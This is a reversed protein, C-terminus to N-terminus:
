SCRHIKKLVSLIARTSESPGAAVGTPTDWGPDPNESALAALIYSVADGNSPGYGGELVLALPVGAAQKLIRVLIRFDEPRIQMGGLPDDDLIDLGAAVLLADPKFRAIAPAFIESFVASYDGIGSRPRLPANITFGKGYGSGIEDMTGSFPFLNAQQVSCYLVKNSGYFAHQIGNGHHVDWDVIAVRDVGTVLKAAAIAVNNLLCFGMPKDQEAHHGPPRILAFCHEGNMSRETATIVAGAAHLAVDYSHPTIYTDSDLFMLSPTSTCRRELWGLYHPSHVRLIEEPAATVFVEELKGEPVGACANELRAQCELYAMNDHLRCIPDTIVSYRVM